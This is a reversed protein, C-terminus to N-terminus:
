GAGTKEAALWGLVDTGAARVGTGRFARGPLVTAGPALRKVDEASKGMGSGEHTIFPVITRGAFDHNSLFTMVSPAVTSWWNPSGVLTVEYQAVAPGYGFNLGM